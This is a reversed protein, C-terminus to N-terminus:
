RQIYQCCVSLAQHIPDIDQTHIYAFCIISNDYMVEAQLHVVINYMIGIVNCSCDAKCPGCAHHELSWIHNEFGPLVGNAERLLAAKREPNVGWLYMYRKAKAPQATEREFKEFCDSVSLTHRICNQHPFHDVTSSVIIVTYTNLNSSCHKLWRGHVWLHLGLKYSRWDSISLLLLWLNGIRIVM